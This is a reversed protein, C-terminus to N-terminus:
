TRIIKKVLITQIKWPSLKLTSLLREQEKLRLDVNYLTVPEGFDISVEIEKDTPNWLRAYLNNHNVFLATLIADESNISPWEPKPVSYEWAARAASVRSYFPKLSYVFRHKGSIPTFKYGNRSVSDDSDYLWSQPAWALVRYLNGEKRNIYFGAPESIMVSIGIGPSSEIGVWSKSNFHTLKVEDYYFPTDRLLLQNGIPFVVSLKKLDDVYYGDSTEQPGFVMGNGFDFTVEIEAQDGNVIVQEFSIKGLSGTIRWQNDGIHDVTQISDRSDYHIGEQWVSFFGAGEILKKGQISISYTGNRVIEVNFLSVPNNKSANPKVLQGSLIQDAIEKAGICLEVGVMGLPKNHKKSLWTGCVLMDHHQSLLLKRWGLRITEERSSDQKEWWQHADVQEAMLLMREAEAWSRPLIDAQLGWPLTQTLDDQELHLTPYEHIGIIRAYNKLTITKLKGLGAIPTPSEFVDVFQSLLPTSIKQAFSRTRFNRIEEEHFKGFISPSLGGNLIGRHFPDGILRSYDQTSYRPITRITSYDPGQWEVMDSDFSPDSGFAAWHTRLLVLSFGFGNLIQPLQICFAPEQSAYSTVQQNTVSEISILGEYFQRICSENGVIQLFPQSYTGNVMEVKGMQICQRLYDLSSSDAISMSEFTYGDIELVSNIEYTDCRYLIENIIVPWFFKFWLGGNKILMWDWLPIGGHCADILYIDNYIYEERFKKSNNKLSYHMLNAAYKVAWELLSGPM